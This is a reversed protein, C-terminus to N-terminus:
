SALSENPPWCIASFSDVVIASSPPWHIAVSVTSVGAPAIVSANGGHCDVCGLVVAKSKHMTYTDSSTHCSKCGASKAEAQEPAEGRPAAPATVYHREVPKEGDSASVAWPTVIALAVLALAWAVWTKTM